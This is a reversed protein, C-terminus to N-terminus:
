FGEPTEGPWAVERQTQKRVLVCPSPFSRCSGKQSWRERRRHHKQRSHLVLRTNKDHHFPFEWPKLRLIASGSYQKGHSTSYEQPLGDVLM